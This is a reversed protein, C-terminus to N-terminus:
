PRNPPAQGPPRTYDLPIVAVEDRFPSKPDANVQDVLRRGKGIIRALALAASRRRGIFDARARQAYNDETEALLTQVQQVPLGSSIGSRLRIHIRRYKLRASAEVRAVEASDPGKEFMETLLGEIQRADTRLRALIAPDFAVACDSALWDALARRTEESPAAPRLIWFVAAGLLAGLLFGLIVRRAM